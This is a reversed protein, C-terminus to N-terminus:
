SPIYAFLLFASSQLEATHLSSRDTRVQSDAIGSEQLLDVAHTATITPRCVSPNTRTHSLTSTLHLDNANGTATASLESASGVAASRYTVVVGAQPLLSGNVLLTLTIIFITSLGINVIHTALSLVTLDPQLLRCTISHRLYIKRFSVVLQQLM